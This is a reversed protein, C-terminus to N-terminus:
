AVGKISEINDNEIKELDGEGPTVDYKGCTNHIFPLVIGFGYKSKIILEKNSGMMVDSGNFNNNDAIINFIRAVLTLNYTNGDVTIYHTDDGLKWGNVKAMAISYDISDKLPTPRKMEKVVKFLCKFVPHEENYHPRPVNVCVASHGECYLGNEEDQPINTAKCIKKYSELAAKRTTNNHKLEMATENIEMRYEFILSALTEEDTHGKLMRYLEIFNRM